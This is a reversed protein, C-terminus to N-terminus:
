SVVALVSSAALASALLSAALAVSALAVSALASLVALFYNKAVSFLKSATKWLTSFLKRKIYGSYNSYNSYNSYVMGWFRLRKCWKQNIIYYNIVVILPTKM